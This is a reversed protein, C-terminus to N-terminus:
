PRSQISFQRAYDFPTQETVRKFMTGFAQASAYGLEAAVTSISKGLSLQCIAESIRLQQRWEGFTLGTQEKFLRSLTRASAGARDSWIDLTDTSSPRSLLMECVKLLRKDRPLPLSGGEITPADRLRQLLLPVALASASEPEYELPQEAMLQVLERLLPNIAIVRCDPWLWPATDPEIYLGRLSVPGIMHLEHDVGPAIWLGRHPSLTWAGQSTLARVVGRTTFVLQVQEHSHWIERAGNQYDYERALVPRVQRRYGYGYHQRWINDM